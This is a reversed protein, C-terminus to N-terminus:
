QAVDALKASMPTAATTEDFSMRLRLSPPADVAAKLNNLAKTSKQVNM